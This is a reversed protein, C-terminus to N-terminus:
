VDVDEPLQLSELCKDLIHPEVPTVFAVSDYSRSKYKEFPALLFGSSTSLYHEYLQLVLRKLDQIKQDSDCVDQLIKQCDQSCMENYEDDSSLEESHLTVHALYIASAAVESPPEYIFDPSLAAIELLYETLCKLSSGILDSTQQRLLLINSFHFPSIVRFNFDLSACIDREM